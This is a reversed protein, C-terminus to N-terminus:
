IHLSTIKVVRNIGNYDSIFSYKASPVHHKLLSVLKTDQGKGIELFLSTHPFTKGELQRLLGEIIGLGDKGGLLAERPEFRTIETSLSTLESNQIYPLNAVIIDVPHPLPELLNGHLLVVQTDINHKRCNMETVQLSSPSIDTAYIISHPLKLALTIAIAGCGTGIDAILFAREHLTVNKNIDSIWELAGEVILETEPRPILVRHDVYFDNEYFEKHGVLYASPEGQLRRGLFRWLREVEGKNLVHNHESFLQAPQFNLIHQLFIRAEIHSDDIGNLHLIQASLQLAQALTM